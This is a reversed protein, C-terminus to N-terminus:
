VLKHWTCASDRLSTGLAILSHRNLNEHLVFVFVLQDSLMCTVSETLQQFIWPKLNCGFCTHHGGLISIDAEPQAEVVM